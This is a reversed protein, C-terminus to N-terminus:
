WGKARLATVASRVDEPTAAEVAEDPRLLTDVVARLGPAGQDLYAAALVAEVLDAAAGPMLTWTHLMPGLVRVHEYLGASSARYDLFQDTAAQNPMEALKPRDDRAQTTPGRADQAYPLLARRRVELGLLADGLWALPWNGFGGPCGNARVSVFASLLLAKSRFTLGVKREIARIESGVAKGLEHQFVYTGPQMLMTVSEGNGLAVPEGRAQWARAAWDRSLLAIGQSNIEQAHERLFWVDALRVAQRLVGPSLFDMEPPAAPADASAPSTESNIPSPRRPLPRVLRRDLRM